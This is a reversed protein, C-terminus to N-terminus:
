KAADAIAKIAAQLNKVLQSDPNKKIWDRSATSLYVSEGSAARTRKEGEVMSCEIYYTVWGVYLKGSLHGRAKASQIDVRFGAKELLTKVVAIAEEFNKGEPLTVAYEREPVEGNKGEYTCFNNLNYRFTKNAGKVTGSLEQFRIMCGDYEFEKHPVNTHKELASILSEMIISHAKRSQSLILRTTYKTDM